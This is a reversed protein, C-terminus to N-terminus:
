FGLVYRYPKTEPLIIDARYIVAIAVNDTELTGPLLKRVSSMKLLRAEIVSRDIIRFDKRSFFSQHLSSKTLQIICAHLPSHPCRVWECRAWEQQTNLHREHPQIEGM